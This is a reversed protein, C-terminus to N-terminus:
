GRGPHAPDGGVREEHAGLLGVRFFRRDMCYAYAAKPHVLVSDRVGLEGSEDCRGTVLCNRFAREIRGHIRTSLGLPQLGAGRNEEHGGAPHVHVVDVAAPGVHGTGTPTM